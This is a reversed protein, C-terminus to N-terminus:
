AGKLAQQAPFAQQESDNVEVWIGRAVANEAKALQMPIGAEFTGDRYVMECTGHSRFRIRDCGEITQGDARRFCRVKGAVPKPQTGIALTDRAIHQATELTLGALNWSSPYAIQNLALRQKQWAQKLEALEVEMEAVRRDSELLTPAHNRLSAILDANARGADSGTHPRVVIAVGTCCRGDPDVYVDGKIYLDEAPRDRFDRMDVIWDGKTAKKELETLEDRQKKTLPM